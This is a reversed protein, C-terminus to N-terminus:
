CSWFKQDYYIRTKSHLQRLAVQRKIEENNEKFNISFERLAYGDAKLLRKIVHPSLFWKLCTAKEFADRGIWSIFDHNVSILGLKVLRSFLPNLFEVELADRKFLDKFNRRSLRNTQELSGLAYSRIEDEMSWDTVANYRFGNGMRPSFECAYWGVGFAHSMVQPGLGVSSFRLKHKSRWVKTEWPWFDLYGIRDDEQMAYGNKRLYSGLLDWWNTKFRPSNEISSLCLIQPRIKLVDKLKKEFSEASYIDKVSVELSLMIKPLEKLSSLIGELNKNEQPSIHLSVSSVYRLINRGVKAARDLIKLSFFAGPELDFQERILCLFEEIEDVSSNMAELSVGKFPIGRFIGGLNSIDRKLIETTNRELPLVIELAIEEPIVRQQRLLLYENWLQYIYSSKVPDFYAPLHTSSKRPFCYYQRYNASLFEPWLFSSDTKLPQVRGATLLREM